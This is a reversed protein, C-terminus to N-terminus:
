LFLGRGLYKAMCEHSCIVAEVMVNTRGSSDLGVLNECIQKLDFDVMFYVYSEFCYTTCPCQKGCRLYRIIVHSYLEKNNFFMRKRRVVRACSEKLSIIKCISGGNTKLPRDHDGFNNMFLDLKELRLNTFSYPLYTLLNHSAGFRKLKSLNGIEKPLEKLKNHSLQLQWLESLLCICHPLSSLNNNDLHLTRLTTCLMSSKKCVNPLETLLNHSLVLEALSQMESIAEPIIKIKNSSLDLSTLYKLALIRSDVKVLQCDNVKLKELKTPFSTTTPYDKRTSINMKTKPTEIHKTKAPAMSSLVSQGSLAQGKHAMALANLIRKLEIPDAKKICLDVMPENLRITAKGDSLFKGFIQKINEKVKYKVGQKDRATCYMLFVVDGPKRALFLTAQAAKGCGGRMGQSAVNRNVVEVQCKVRM